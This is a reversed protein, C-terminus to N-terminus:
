KRLSPLIMSTREAFRLCLGSNNWLGIFSLPFLSHYDLSAATISSPFVCKQFKTIPMFAPHKSEYDFLVTILSLIAKVHIGVGLKLEESIQLFLLTYKYILYIAGADLHVDM